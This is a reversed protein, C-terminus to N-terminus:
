DIPDCSRPSAPVEDRASATVIFVCGTPTRITDHVTAEGARCYDGARMLVGNVLVDGELLYLEEVDAHRHAPYVADPAMRVLLTVRRRAADASLRKVEVGPVSGPEWGLQAGRVFRIGGAERVPVEEAAIRELLRARLSPAAHRMPAAYALQAVVSRFDDLERRAVPDDVAVADAFARADDASLAGFAYLAARERLRDLDDETM